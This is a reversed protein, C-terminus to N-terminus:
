EEVVYRYYVSEGATESKRVIKIVDGVKAKLAKVAPDSLKIRPLQYLKIRYTSLLRRVEDESAIMHEPVLEHKPLTFEEEKVM